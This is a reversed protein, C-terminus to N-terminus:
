GRRAYLVSTETRQEGQARRIAKHLTSVVEGAPKGHLQAVLDAAGLFLGPGGHSLVFAADGTGLALAESSYKFGGMMGLPPGQAGLEEMSGDRRIIAGPVRGASAWEVRDNGMALVGAEVFQDLGEIAASSLADNTRALLEPVTAHHAAMGRLVARATGLHHAPPLGDGHVDLTVLAARGDALTTWDWVSSGRGMAERTTGAALEYGAVRPASRPMMGSQMARSLAYEDSRYAAGPDMMEVSAFRVGLARLARSLARMMRVALSDGGLLEEFHERRVMVLTTRETTRATASRPADNLLSMEGFGQGARRVALRDVGGDPRSRSIEVAGDFVIYFADGPEGERFVVEGEGLSREGVIGAMRRLDDEPLGAFLDVEELLEVVEETSWGHMDESV